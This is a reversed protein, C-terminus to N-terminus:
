DCTFKEKVLLLQVAGGSRLYWTTASLSSCDLAFNIERSERPFPRWTYFDLASPVTSKWPPCNICFQSPFLLSLKSAPGHYTEIDPSKVSSASPTGKSNLLAGGPPSINKRCTKEGGPYHFWFGRCSHLLKPVVTNAM